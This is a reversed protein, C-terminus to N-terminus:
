NGTQRPRNVERTKIKHESCYAAEYDSFSTLLPYGAGSCLALLGLDLGFNGHCGLRDVAMQDRQQSEETGLLAAECKSLVHGALGMLLAQCWATFPLSLFITDVLQAIYWITTSKLHSFTKGHPPLSIYSMVRTAQTVLNDLSTNCCSWLKLRVCLTQLM